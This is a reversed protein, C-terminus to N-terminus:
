LIRKEIPGYFKELDPLEDRHLYLFVSLREQHVTDVLALYKQYLAPSDINSDLFTKTVDIMREWNSYVLKENIPSSRLGFVKRSLLEDIGYWSLGYVGQLALKAYPGMAPFRPAIWLIWAAFSTVTEASWLAWQRKQRYSELRTNLNFYQAQTSPGTAPPEGLIALHALNMDQYSQALTRKWASRDSTECTERLDRDIKSYGAERDSFTQV